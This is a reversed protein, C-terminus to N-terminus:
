YFEHMYVPQLSLMARMADAVEPLLDAWGRAAFDGPDISGYLWASLGQVSLSSGVSPAHKVKLTGGVGEFRWAGENWPCFPDKIHVSFGGAGCPIGNLMSIDIVRGMPSHALSLELSAKLDVLWLEPHEWPPLYIEAKEVQDTHRAIWELMRMRALPTTYYFRQADFIKKWRAEEAIRYIMIGTVQENEKVVLMWPNDDKIKGALEPECFAMGHVRAHMEELYARYIGLGETALMREVSGGFSQKLLSSLATLPFKAHHGIPFTAYGLREYFSERFPYLGSVPMGIERMDAFSAAMIQRVYGKRRTEPSSCVGWVGGMPLLKGRVNQPMNTYGLVAAARGDEFAAWCHMGPVEQFEELYKVRDPLPPTARYAYSDLDYFAQKMEQGVLKRVSVETM